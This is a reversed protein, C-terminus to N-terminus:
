RGLFHRLRDLLSVHGRRQEPALREAKVQQQTAELDAALREREHAPTRDSALLARLQDPALVGGPRRWADLFEALQQDTYTDQDTLALCGRSLARSEDSTGVRLRALTFM